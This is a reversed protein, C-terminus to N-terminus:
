FPISDYQKKSLKKGVNWSKRYRRSYSEYDHEGLHAKQNNPLTIQDVLDRSNKQQFSEGHLNFAEGMSGMLSNMLARKGLWYILYALGLTLTSTIIALVAYGFISVAGTILQTASTTDM